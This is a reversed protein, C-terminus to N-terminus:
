PDDGHKAMFEAVAHCSQVTRQGPSLDRRTLVYMRLM